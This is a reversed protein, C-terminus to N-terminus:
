RGGLHFILGAIPGYHTVDYQHLENSKLGTMEIGLGKYGVELGGWPKFRWEIGVLASWTLDARGAGIDARTILSVNEALRPRYAFGGFANALTESADIPTAGGAPTSFAMKPSMTYTRLGAIVAFRGQPRVLYSGALEFLVNDFDVDGNVTLERGIVYQTASSLRFFSLDSLIAWRGNTAELHFSFFGGLSDVADEFDLVIPVEAPGAEIEGDISSAWVYLPAFNMRWRDDQQALAPRPALLLGLLALL